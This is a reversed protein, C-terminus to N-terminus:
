SSVRLNHIWRGTEIILWLTLNLCAIELLQCFVTSAQSPSLYFARANSRARPGIWKDM